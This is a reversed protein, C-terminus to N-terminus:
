KQTASLHQGKGRRLYKEHGAIEIGVNQQDQGEGEQKRSIEKANGKGKGRTEM